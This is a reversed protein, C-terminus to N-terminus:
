MFLNTDDKKRKSKDKPKPANPNEGQYFLKLFNISEQALVGQKCFLPEGVDCNRPNKGHQKECQINSEATCNDGGTVRNESYENTQVKETNRWPKHFMHQHVPLVSGCGGFRPNSCGYVVLKIGVFRLAMACMICPETTVYLTSHNLVDQCNVNNLRCYERVGEIALMEAHRTANKTRNAENCGEGIVKDNYVIVCGVPVEGQSLALSAQFIPFHDVITFQSKQSKPNSSPKDGPRQLRPPM